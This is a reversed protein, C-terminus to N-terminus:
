RKLMDRTVREHFGRELCYLMYPTPFGRLRHRGLIQRFVETKKHHQEKIFKLACDWLLKTCIVNCFHDKTCQEVRSAINAATGLFGDQRKEGFTKFELPLIVGSHAGIGFNLPELEVNPFDKRRQKDYKKIRASVRDRFESIWWLAILANKPGRVVLVFGDGTHNLLHNEDPPFAKDQSKLLDVAVNLIDKVLEKLLSGGGPNESKGLHYRHASFNRIDFVVVTAYDKYNV